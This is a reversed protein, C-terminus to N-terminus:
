PCSQPINIKGWDWSGWAKKKPSLVAMAKWKLTALGSKAKTVLSSASTKMTSNTKHHIVLYRIVQSQISIAHLLLVKGLTKNWRDEQYLGLEMLVIHHAQSTSSVAVVPQSSVEGCCTQMIAHYGQYWDPCIKPFNQFCGPALRSLIMWIESLGHARM